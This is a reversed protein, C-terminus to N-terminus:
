VSVRLMMMALSFGNGVIDKEIYKFSVWNLLIKDNTPIHM